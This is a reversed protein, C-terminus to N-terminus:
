MSNDPRLKKSNQIHKSLLTKKKLHDNIEKITGWKAKNGCFRTELLTGSNTNFLEKGPENHRPLLLPKNLGTLQELM